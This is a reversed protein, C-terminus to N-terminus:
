DNLMDSHKAVFYASDKLQAAITRKPNNSIFKGFQKFELKVIFDDNEDLSIIELSANLTKRLGSINVGRKKSREQFKLLDKCFEAMESAFLELEEGDQYNAKKSANFVNKGEKNYQKITVQYM